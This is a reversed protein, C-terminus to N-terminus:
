KDKDRDVRNSWRAFDMAEEYAAALIPHKKWDRFFKAIKKNGFMHEFVAHTLCTRIDDGNNIYLTELWKKIQSLYHLPINKDTGIHTIWSSLDWGANYRSMLYSDIDDSIPNEILCRNYYGKFFYFYEDFTLEPTIRKTYVRRLLLSYIAGLTNLDTEKMWKIVTDHDIKSTKPNEPDGFSDSIEKLADNM